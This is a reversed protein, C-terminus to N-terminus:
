LRENHSFCMCCHFAGDRHRRVLRVSVYEDFSCDCKQYEVEDKHGQSEPGTSELVEFKATVIEEDNSRQHKKASRARDRETLPVNM